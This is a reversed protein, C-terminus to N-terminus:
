DEETFHESLFEALAAADSLALRFIQRRRQKEGKGVMKFVSLKEDGGDYSRIEAQLDTEPVSGLESIVLDKEADYAM